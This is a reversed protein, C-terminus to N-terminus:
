KVESIAAKYEEVIQRLRCVERQSEELEAGAGVEGGGALQTVREELAAKDSELQQVKDM